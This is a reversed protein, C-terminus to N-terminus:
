KFINFKNLQEELLDSSVSLKDQISEIQDLKEKYESLTLYIKYCVVALAITIVLKFGLSIRNMLKRRKEVKELAALRKELDLIKEENSM